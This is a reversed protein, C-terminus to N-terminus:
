TGLERALGQVFDRARKQKYVQALIELEAGPVGQLNEIDIRMGETLGGLGQWELKRFAALDLLARIPRAIWATQSGFQRREILELFRERHLALPHFAFSGLTPHELASSKRGPIVSATIHVSEPIWGQSSLAMEFSVYSGPALAQAIAFPHVPENRFRPALVYLGRRIRVLEKAKLARNVLGYRGAPGRGLVRELQRESLIRDTVGQEMLSETLTQMALYKWISGTQVLKHFKNLALTSTARVVSLVDVGNGTASKLPGLDEHRGPLARIARAEIVSVLRKVDHLFRIRGDPQREASVHPASV